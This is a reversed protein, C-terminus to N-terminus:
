RRNGRASSTAYDIGCYCPPGRHRDVRGGLLDLAQQGTRGVLRDDHDVEEAELRARVRRVVPDGALFGVSTVGRRHPSEHLGFTTAEEPDSPHIRLHDARAALAKM